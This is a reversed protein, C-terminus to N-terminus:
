PPRGESHQSRHQRCRRAAFREREREREIYIYIYRTQRRRTSPAATPLLSSPPSAATATMQLWPPPPPPPFNLSIDLSEGGNEAGICWLRRLRRPERRRHVPPPLSWAILCFIPLPVFDPWVYVCFRPLSDPCDPCLCSIRSVFSPCPCPHPSCEPSGRCWCPVAVRAKM